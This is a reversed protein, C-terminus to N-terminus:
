NLRAEGELIVVDGVLCDVEDHISGGNAERVMNYWVESAEKNYPLGMLKGEENCIIQIDGNDWVFELYGGVMKQIEKLTPQKDKIRILKAEM